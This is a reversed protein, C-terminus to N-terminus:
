AVESYLFLGKSLSSPALSLATDTDLRDVLEMQLVCSKLLQVGEALMPGSGCRSLWAHTFGKENLLM